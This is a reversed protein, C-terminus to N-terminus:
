GAQNFKDPSVPQFSNILEQAIACRLQIQEFLDSCSSIYNEKSKPMNDIEVIQGNRRVREIYNETNRELIGSRQFFNILHAQTRYCNAAKMKLDVVAQIDLAIRNSPDTILEGHKVLLRNAEPLTFMMLSAFNLTKEFNDTIQDSLISKIAYFTSIGTWSHDPQTTTGAENFTLLIHPNTQLIQQKIPLLASENIGLDPFGLFEVSQIGLIEAARLCEQQRTESFAQREGIEIERSGVVGQEKGTIAIRGKEGNSVVLLHVNAGEQAYKALAGGMFLTEDDPHSMVALVSLKETM